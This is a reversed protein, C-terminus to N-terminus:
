TTVAVYPPSEFERVLMDDDTVCFTTAGAAGVVVLTLEDSLGDM